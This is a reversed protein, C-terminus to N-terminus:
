VQLELPVIVTNGLIVLKFYTIRMLKSKSLDKLNKYISFDFIVLEHNPSIPNGEKWLHDYAFSIFNKDVLKSINIHFEFSKKDSLPFDVILPSLFDVQSKNMPTFSHNALQAVTSPLYSIILISETTITRNKSFGVGFWGIKYKSFGEVRILENTASESSNEFTFYVDKNMLCALKKTEGL